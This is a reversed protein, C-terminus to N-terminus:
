KCRWNTLEDEYFCFYNDPSATFELDYRFKGAYHEIKKVVANAGEVLIAKYGIWGWNETPTIIPTRKLVVETGVEFRAYKFLERQYYDLKDIAWDLESTDCKKAWEVLQKIKAGETRMNYEKMPQM